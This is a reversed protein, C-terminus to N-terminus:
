GKIQKYVWTKGNFYMNNNYWSFEINNYLAENISIQMNLMKSICIKVM